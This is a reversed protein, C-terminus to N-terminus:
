PAIVDLPSEPRTVTDEALFGAPPDLDLDTTVGKAAPAADDKTTQDGRPADDDHGKKKNNGHEEAGPTNLKSGDGRRQQWRDHVLALVKYREGMHKPGCLRECATILTDVDADNLKDQDLIAQLRQVIGMRGLWEGQRVPGFVRVDDVLAAQKACAHFDVDVTM